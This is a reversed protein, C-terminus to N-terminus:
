YSQRNLFLNAILDPFVTSVLVMINSKMFGEWPDQPNYKLSEYLFIPWQDGTTAIQGSRLASRTAEDNWDLETPCLYKGTTIHFYGRDTKINRSLAPTLVSGKPTIIEIIAAKLSKNDDSRAGAVGKALMSAIYLTENSNADKSWLRERLEPVLRLLENFIEYEKREEDGLDDITLRGAKIATELTAGSNLLPEFSCFMRITRGFHRGYHVLPDTKAFKKTPGLM